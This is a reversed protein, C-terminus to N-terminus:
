VKLKRLSHVRLYKEFVVIRAIAGLGINALCVSATNISDSITNVSIKGVSLICDEFCVSLDLCNFKSM